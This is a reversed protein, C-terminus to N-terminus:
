FLAAAQHTFVFRRGAESRCREDTGSRYYMRLQQKKLTGTALATPGTMSNQLQAIDRRMAQLEKIFGYRKGADDQQFL